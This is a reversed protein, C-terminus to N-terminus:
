RIPASAPVARESGERPSLSRVRQGLRFAAILARRWSSPPSIVHPPSFVAVHPALGFRADALWELRRVDSALRERETMGPVMAISRNAGAARKPLRRGDDTNGENTGDGGTASPMLAAQWGRGAVAVFIVPLVSPL